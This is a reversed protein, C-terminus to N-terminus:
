KTISLFEQRASADSRFLGLMASTITSSGPQNIGRSEMCMHRANVIVAVGRPALHEMLANAIDNTLREQVQLRRAFMNVIRPLKSLGVIRKDPLYGITVTGFIPALHHECHSYFPIGKVIVMEDCGEAGDEFTKLISKADMKYGSTWELWAKAVRDPTEKLGERNAKPDVAKLIMATACVLDANRDAENYLVFAPMEIPANALPTKPAASEAWYPDPAPLEPMTKMQDNYRSDSVFEFGNWIQGQANREGLNFNIM